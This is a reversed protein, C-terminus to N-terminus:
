PLLEVQVGAGVEEGLYLSIGTAEEFERFMRQLLQRDVCCDDTNWLVPLKFGNRVFRMFFLKLEGSLENLAGTKMPRQWVVQEYENFVTFIGYVPRTREEGAKAGLRIIKAFKFSADGGLIEGDWRQMVRHQYEELTWDVGDVELVPLKSFYVHWVDRLFHETLVAGCYKTSDDFSGFKEPTAALNVSRLISSGSRRANVLSTYKLQDVMFKTTYAQRIYQASASFGKGHVLDDALRDVMRIEIGSRKTLLFPFEKSVYDPLRRLCGADWANFSTARKEAETKGKNCEVCKACKYRFGMVYAVDHEMFVRRPGKPNWGDPAGKGGCRPCPVKDLEPYLFEPVWVFVAKQHFPDLQPLGPSPQFTACKPRVLPSDYPFRGRVTGGQHIINKDIKDKVEKFFIQQAGSAGDDGDGGGPAGGAGGGGAGRGPAAARRVGGRGGGRGN